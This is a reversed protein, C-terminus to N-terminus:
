GDDTADGETITHDKTWRCFQSSVVPKHTQWMLSQLGMDAIAKRLTEETLPTDTAETENM